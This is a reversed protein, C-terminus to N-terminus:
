FYMKFIESGYRSYIFLDFGLQFYAKPKSLRKGM